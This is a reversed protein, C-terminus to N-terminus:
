VRLVTEEFAMCQNLKVSHGMRLAHCIVIESFTFLECALDGCNSLEAQPRSHTHTHTHPATALLLSHTSLTLSHGSHFRRRGRVQLVCGSASTRWTGM